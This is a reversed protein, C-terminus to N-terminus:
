RYVNGTIQFMPTIISLALVGVVVGIFMLLAPEILVSLRKTATDLKNEFIEAVNLLTEELKGTREGVEIMRVVIQPFYRSYRAVVTSLTEGSGMHLNIKKVASKFYYNSVTKQTIELSDNITLGSKLLISLTRAFIAINANMNIGALPPLYLLIFHTYKQMFKRHLFWYIFSIIAIVEVFLFVGQTRILESFSILMRTTLPLDVKLGKLVTVIKPLVWYSLSVGIILSAILIVTPYILAAKIKDVLEKEKKIQSSVNELNEELTGSEEGARVASIFLPSFYNSYISLSDSFSNGSSVSGRVSNLAKKFTGSAQSQLIELSEIVTLGSKIMISLQSAFVSKEELSVGFFSISKNLVSNNKKM